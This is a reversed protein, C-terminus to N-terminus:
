AVFLVEVPLEPAALKLKHVLARVCHKDTSVLGREEADAPEVIRFEWTSTDVEFEGCVDKAMVHDPFFRYRAGTDTTDVLVGKFHWTTVRPHEGRAASSAVPRSGHRGYAQCVSQQPDQEHQRFVPDRSNKKAGSDPVRDSERMLPKM